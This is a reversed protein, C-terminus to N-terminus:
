VLEQGTKRVYAHLTGKGISAKKPHIYDFGVYGKRPVNRAVMGPRFRNALVTKLYTKDRYIDIEVPEDSDRQFALGFIRDKDLKQIFGYTFPHKKEHLHRYTKLQKKAMKYLAMDEANLKKIHKIEETKLSEFSLSKEDKANLHMHPFDVNFFANFLDISANYEETIGIFGYLRPDIKQLNRSQMNRFRAEKAFERLSKTYGYNNKFHNYHSLVQQVPNRLFTVIDVMDYLPGYKSVDFHGSLFSKPREHLVKYLGYPDNEEYVKDIIVPSTELAEASYDYFTNEKGFYKEAAIRFSTGATKPLHVFLIHQNM